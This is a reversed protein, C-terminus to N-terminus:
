HSPVKRSPAVIALVIAAGCFAVVMRAIPDIEIGFFGLAFLASGAGIISAAALIVGLVLRDLITDRMRTETTSESVRKFELNCNLDRQGARAEARGDPLVRVHLDVMGVGVECHGAGM